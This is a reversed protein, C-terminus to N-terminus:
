EWDDVISRMIQCDMEMVDSYSLLVVRVGGVIWPQNVSFMHKAALTVEGSVASSWEDVIFVMIARYRYRYEDGGNARRVVKRLEEISDRPIDGFASKLRDLVQVKMLIRDREDGYGRIVLEIDSFESVANPVSVRNRGLCRLLGDLFVREIAYKADSNHSLSAKRLESEREISTEQDRVDEVVSQEVEFLDLLESLSLIHFTQGDSKLRYEEVLEARPSIVRDGARHWWDAKEEGTVFILSLKRSHGLELITHWILVDGVGRDDKSADKFGPPIRHTIRRELDAKLENNSIKSKITLGAFVETYLESVPDNWTWDTVVKALTNVMRGIDQKARAIERQKKRVQVYSDLSSLLPADKFSGVINQSSVNLLSDSLEGIKQYRHTAYERAVQAPNFLRDAGKLNRYVRGINDLSSNSTTYPLLLVNADLVVLCQDKIESLAQPKWAFIAEPDPFLEDKIFINFNSKGGDTAMLDEWEITMM